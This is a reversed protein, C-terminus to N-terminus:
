LNKLNQPLLLSECAKIISKKISQADYGCEQYLEDLSGQEVFYDPIGLRRIRAQYSNDAMFELVASGMGGALANDEVTIITNFHQFIDHLLDKDIPKLFRLDFLALDYGHTKKIENIAQLAANGVHGISIIAAHSGQKLCRGKGVEIEEFPTQWNRLVGNGRPYRIVFPGKPKLQATYM